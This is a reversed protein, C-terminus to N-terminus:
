SGAKMIRFVALHVLVSYAIAGAWWWLPHTLGHATVFWAAWLSLIFQLTAMALGPNWTRTKMGQVIHSVCNMLSFVIIVLGFGIDIFALAGLISFAIWVLGINIWFVKVDTLRETGAPLRFTTRNIYDKFGGPWYHEETQHFLYLPLNVLAWFLATDPRYRWFLLVTTLAGLWPAPRAWRQREAFYAIMSVKEERAREGM